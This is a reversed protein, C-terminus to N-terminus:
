KRQVDSPHLWEGPPLAEDSEHSEAEKDWLILYLNISKPKGSLRNAVPALLLGAPIPYLPTFGYTDLGDSRVRPKCTIAQSIWRFGAAYFENIRSELFVSASGRDTFCAMRLYRVDEDFSFSARGSPETSHVAEWKGAEWQLVSVSVMIPNKARPKGSPLAKANGQAFGLNAIALAFFAFVLTRKM